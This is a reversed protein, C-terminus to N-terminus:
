PIPTNKANVPKISENCNPCVVIKDFDSLTIPIDGNCKPCNIKGQMNPLNKKISDMIGKTNITGINSVGGNLPM